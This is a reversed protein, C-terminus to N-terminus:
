PLDLALWHAVLGGDIYPQITEKTWPPQRLLQQKAYVALTLEYQAGAGVRPDANSMFLVFMETETFGISPYIGTGEYVVTPCSWSRCSDHSVAFVLPARPRYIGPNAGFDRSAGPRAFNWFLVVSDSGPIREAKVNSLPSALGTSTPPGWSLGGDRSLCQWLCGYLSRFVLWIAGDALEVAAPEGFGEPANPLPEPPAIM